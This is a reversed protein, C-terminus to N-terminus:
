LMQSFCRCALNEYVFMPVYLSGFGTGLMAGDPMGHFDSGGSICLRYKSAIRILLDQEYLNHSSYYCEIGDLGDSQLSKVTQEIESVEMGYRLPHALISLGGAIKIASIAEHPPIGRREVYTPTGPLLYKVFASQTTACYGTDAIARAFHTRTIAAAEHRAYSKIQELSIDVGAARLRELLELNRDQRAAYWRKVAETLPKSDKDIFLGLLHIEKKYYLSSIEIGPVFVIGHEDAALQAEALGNLTDHDTLALAGLGKSKALAM